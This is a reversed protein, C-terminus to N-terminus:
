RVNIEVRRNRPEDVEDATPVLPEREGRGSVELKLADVGAGILANRVFQARKISLADNAEAKGVRDTHGIVAIEPAPRRALEAKVQDFVPKSDPTLEDRGSVFHVLWSMPRPPQAALVAGFRAQVEENSSQGPTIAGKVGVDAAAYPRDLTTEGQASKVVLASSGGGAQPLLVIREKPAEPQPKPPEPQPTLIYAVLALIPIILPSM